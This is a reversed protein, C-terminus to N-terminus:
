REFSISLGTRKKGTEAMTHSMHIDAKNVNAATVTFHASFFLSTCLLKNMTQSVQTVRQIVIIALYNLSLNFIYAM